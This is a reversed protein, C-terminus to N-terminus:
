STKRANLQDKVLAIADEVEISPKSYPNLTRETLVTEHWAPSAYTSSIRSLDRWLFEMAELKDTLSLAGLITEISM